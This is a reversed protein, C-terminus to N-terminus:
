YQIQWSKQVQGGWSISRTKGDESTSLMFICSSNDTNMFTGDSIFALRTMAGQTNNSFSGLLKGNNLRLLVEKSAVNEGCAYIPEVPTYDPIQAKQGNCITMSQQHASAVDYVGTNNIDSAMLIVSGGNACTSEDAAIVKFAVGVGSKGDKGNTGNCVSYKKLVADEEDFQSNGNNDLYSIYTVGGSVCEESSAERVDVNQNIQVSPKQQIVPKPASSDSISDSCGLSM